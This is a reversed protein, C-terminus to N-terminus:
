GGGGFLRDMEFCFCKPVIFYKHSFLPNDFKIAASHNRVCLGGDIM